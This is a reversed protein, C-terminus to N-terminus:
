PLLPHLEDSPVQYGAPKGPKRNVPSATEGALVLPEVGASVLSPVCEVLGSVEFSQM